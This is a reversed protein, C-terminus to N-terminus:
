TPFFCLLFMARFFIISSSPSSARSASTLIFPLCFTLLHPCSSYNARIQALFHSVEGKSCFLNMEEKRNLWHFAPTRHRQCSKIWIIDEMLRKNVVSISTIGETKGSPFKKGLHDNNGLRGDPCDGARASHGLGQHRVLAVQMQKLPVETVSSNFM